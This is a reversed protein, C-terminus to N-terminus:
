KAIHEPFENSLTVAMLKTMLIGDLRNVAHLFISYLYLWPVASLPSTFKNLLNKGREKDHRIYTKCVCVSTRNCLEIM